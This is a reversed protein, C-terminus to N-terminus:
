YNIVEYVGYHDSIYGNTTDALVSVDAIKGSTFIYDISEGETINGWDHYTLGVNEGNLGHSTILSTAKDGLAENFDGSLVVTYEAIAQTLRMEDLKDLIVQAGFARAEDSKNDLHTNLHLIYKDNEIDHLMVYTCIRNCGAGEYRSEREPTESLWFTSKEVCEFKDKLWFVANIESKNENEDGGRKIGYSDYDPMLTELSELWKSNMEQTGIIDPRVTNMYLAFRKVREKSATGDLLNGWPGAVNFSVATLNGTVAPCFTFQTLRSCGALATISLVVAMFVSVFKKM